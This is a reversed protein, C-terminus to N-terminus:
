CNYFIEIYEWIVLIVEDWNNFCYYSLSENKLMGWFSEMLVNDYCNGKCLM